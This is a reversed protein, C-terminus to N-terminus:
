AFATAVLTIFDAELESLNAFTSVGYACPTMTSPLDRYITVLPEPIACLAHYLLVVFANHLVDLFPLSELARFFKLCLNVCAGRLPYLVCM